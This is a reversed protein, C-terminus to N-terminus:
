LQRVGFKQLVPDRGELVAAIEAEAEILEALKKQEAPITQLQLVHLHQNWEAAKRETVELKKNAEIVRKEADAIEKRSAFRSLNQLAVEATHAANGALRHANDARIAEQSDEALTRKLGELVAAQERVARKADEHKQALNTQRQDLQRKVFELTRKNLHFRESILDDREKLESASSCPLETLIVITNDPLSPKRAPATATTADVAPVPMAFRSGDTEFVRAISNV